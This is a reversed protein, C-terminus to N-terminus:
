FMSPSRVHLILFGQWIRSPGITSGDFARYRGAGTAAHLDKRACRRDRQQSSKDYRM